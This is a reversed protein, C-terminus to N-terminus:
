NKLNYMDEALERFYSINELKEMWNEPIHSIGLYAGLLGGVMAGVTDRDSSILVTDLLSNRFTNPEKLFAFISFPVSKFALVNSGLEREGQLLSSDNILLEKIKSLKGKYKSTKAFDILQTILDIRHEEVSYMNPDKPVLLGALKALLAAGDIGLPHTHTAVAAKQAIDYLNEADYYFIGLPAIRMSAGNGYSGEGGFLSQAVENYTKNTDEVISFIRPPGMGYGRYPEKKYNLHFKEGLEQTTWEGNSSIITEAIGLAMAADDTYSIVKRNDVQQILNERKGYKFALEGIADGLGNGIIGGYFKEKILEMNPCM